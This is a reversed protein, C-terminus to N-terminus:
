KKIRFLFIFDYQKLLITSIEDFIWQDRIAFDLLTFDDAISILGSNKAGIRCM